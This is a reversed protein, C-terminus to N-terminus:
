YFGLDRFVLNLPFTLGGLRPSSEGREYLFSFTDCVESPMDRKSKAKYGRHSLRTDKFLEELLLM